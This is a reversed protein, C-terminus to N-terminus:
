LCHLSATEGYMRPYVGHRPTPGTCTAPKGTFAPISGAPAQAFVKPM